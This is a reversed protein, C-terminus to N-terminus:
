KTETNSTLTVYSQRNFINEDQTALNAMYLCTPVSSIDVPAPALGLWTWLWWGWGWFAELITSMNYMFIIWLGLQVEYYHGSRLRILGSALALVLTFTAGMGM